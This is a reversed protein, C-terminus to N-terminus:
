QFKKKKKFLNKLKKVRYDLYRMEAEFELEGIGWKIAGDMNVGGMKMLVEFVQRQVQEKPIHLNDLNSSAAALARYQTECSYVLDFLHNWAEEVTTGCSVLGHNHLIMLRNKPGLSKALAKRFGEDVLIGDYEHYSLISRRILAEQSLPLLGLKHTSVAAGAHTHVHIVCHLDPRATHIASHLVFGARNIGYPTTGRDIINGAPDVRILNSTTVEEYNM